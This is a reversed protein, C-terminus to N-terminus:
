ENIRNSTDVAQRKVGRRYDAEESCARALRTYKEFTEEMGSRNKVQGAQRNYEEKEEDLRRADNECSEAIWGLTAKRQGPPCEEIAQEYTSRAPVGDTKYEKTAVAAGKPRVSWANTDTPNHETRVRGGTNRVSRKRRVDDAGEPEDIQPKALGTVVGRYDQEVGSMDNTIDPADDLSDTKRKRTKYGKAKAKALAREHGSPIKYIPDGTDPDIGMEIMEERTPATEKKSDQKEKKKAKEADREAKAKEAEQKAEHKMRASGGRGELEDKLKKADTWQGNSAATSAPTSEKALRTTDKGRKDKKRNKKGPRDGGKDHATHKRNKGGGGGRGGGSGGSGNGNNKSRSFPNFKSRKSSGGGSGSGGGNGGGSGNSGGKSRSFPNMKSLRSRKSKSDSGTSHAGSTHGGGKGSTSGKPAGGKGLLAKLGGRKGTEPDRKFPNRSRGGSSPRGGGRGGGSGSGNPKNGARHNLPNWRGGAYRYGSRHREYREPDRDGRKRADRVRKKAGIVTGLVALGVVALAGLLIAVGILGLAGYLLLSALVVIPVAAWSALQAVPVGDAKKADTKKDTTKTDDAPEEDTSAQETAQTREDVDDDAAFPSAPKSEEVSM